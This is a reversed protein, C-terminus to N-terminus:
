FFRRNPRPVGFVHMTFIGGITLVAALAALAGPLWLGHRLFARWQMWGVWGLSLFLAPFLIADNVIFGLGVTALVGLLLPTGACCLAAILSGSVALVRSLM